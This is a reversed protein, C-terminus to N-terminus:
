KRKRIIDGEAMVMNPFAALHLPHKDWVILSAWKGKEVTGLHEDIGLIRANNRTILGIADSDSMGYIMFYKLTDRLSTTLIVPHDSMLGYTANSEMLLKVNQYYGHKLEVKYGLTSLPGYVIPIGHKALENFIQKHWVDGLHDATVTLGYKEKLYILYLADDEKHVHVKATKKGSLLELYNKEDTTFGLQYEREADASMQLSEQKSIKAEKLQKEVERLAKDKKLEAAAKKSLIEDFKNELMGYIGMRTDPRTGKWSTTSRPNYGLAMKFGYDKIEADKRNPSFNRIVKAKGGILNGSGPIVCSYLNGFDVAESFARDDFYISNIPDNSILFQATQDNVESEAQPEGERDMGIHSHADIFAPTVWGEYDAQKQKKTVDVIENGEVIVAKDELQQRGDFLTTANIIIQKPM